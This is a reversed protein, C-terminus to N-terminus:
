TQKSNPGRRNWRVRRVKTGLLIAISNANVDLGHTALYKAVSRREADSPAYDLDNLAWRLERFLWNPMEASYNNVYSSSIRLEHCKRVFTNPWHELLSACVRMIQARASHRLEEFIPLSRRHDFEFDFEAREASWQRRLRSGRGKSAVLRVIQRLGHFHLFSRVEGGPLEPSWGYKLASSLRQQFSVLAEGPPKFPRILHADRLNAGCRVCTTNACEFPLLRVRFDSAHFEVPAGCAFCGDRLYERHRVCVVNFALRWERRYYPEPDDSLCTPCYQMGHQIRRRGRRYNPLVWPLVGTPRYTPWLAGEYTSIFTELARQPPTGTSLCLQDLVEPDPSRDIDYGLYGPPRGLVSVCLYQLKVAQGAALRVLWSSFLEDEKPKTRYLWLQGPPYLRSM